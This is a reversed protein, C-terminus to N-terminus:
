DKVRAFAALADKRAAGHDVLPFPYTKGLTVGAAELVQPPAEWPHHLWDNPLGAIEPVWRRVYAGTPDFKTGQTTPNFIRFFPAADAGGGAVRQWGL